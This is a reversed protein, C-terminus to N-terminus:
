NAKEATAKERSARREGQEHISQVSIQSLSQMKQSTSLLNKTVTYVKTPQTEFTKIKAQQTIPNDKWPYKGGNDEAPWIWSM